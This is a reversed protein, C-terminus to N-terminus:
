EDPTLTAPSAMAAAPIRRMRSICFSPNREGHNYTRGAQTIQAPTYALPTCGVIAPTTMPRQVGTRAQDPRSASDGTSRIWRARWPQTANPIMGRNASAFAPTVKPSARRLPLPAVTNIPTITPRTTPLGTPTIHKEQSATRAPAAASGDPTRHDLTRTTPRTAPMPNVIARKM